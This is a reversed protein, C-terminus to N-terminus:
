SEEDRPVEIWRGAPLYSLTSAMRASTDIAHEDVYGYGASDYGIIPSWNVKLMIAEPPMEREMCLAWQNQPDAPLLELTLRDISILDGIESSGPL